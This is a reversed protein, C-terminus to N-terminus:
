AHDASPQRCSIIELRVIRSTAVVSLEAQPEVGVNGFAIKNLYRTGGVM